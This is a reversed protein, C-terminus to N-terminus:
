ELKRGGSREEEVEGWTSCGEAAGKIVGAKKYQGTSARRGPGQNRHGGGGGEQITKHPGGQSAFNNM